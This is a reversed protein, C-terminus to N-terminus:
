PFALTGSHGVIAARTQRSRGRAPRSSIPTGYGPTSVVPDADYGADGRSSNGVLRPDCGKIALM